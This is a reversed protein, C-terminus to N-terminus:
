EFAAQSDVRLQRARALIANEIQASVGDAVPAEVWGGTADRVQKFTSVRVGDARLERNLIYITVKHRENEVGPLSYWETVIVGGFADAQALPFFSITDLSARWLYGNVALGGVGPSNSGEDSFLSGGLVSGSRTEMGRKIKNPDEPTGSGACATLALILALVGFRLRASM